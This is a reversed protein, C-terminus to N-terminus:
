CIGAGTIEDAPPAAVNAPGSVGPPIAVKFPELKVPELTETVKSPLGARTKKVFASWILTCTGNSTVPTLVAIKTVAFPTVLAANLASRAGTAGPMKEPPIRFWSLLTFVAPDGAWDGLIM